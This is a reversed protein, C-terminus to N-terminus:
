QIMISVFDFRLFMKFYNYRNMKEKMNLVM